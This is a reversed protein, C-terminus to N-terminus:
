FAPEGITPRYGFRLAPQNNLALRIRRELRAIETTLSQIQVQLRAKMQTLESYPRQWYQVLVSSVALRLDYDSIDPNERRVLASVERNLVDDIEGFRMGDLGLFVQTDQQIGGIDQNLTTRCAEGCIRALRELFARETQQDRGWRDYVQKALRLFEAADKLDGLGPRRASGDRERLFSGGDNEPSDLLDFEYAHGQRQEAWQELAYQVGVVPAEVMLKVAHYEILINRLAPNRAVAVVNNIKDLIAKAALAEEVAATAQAYRVGQTTAYAGEAVYAGAMVAEVAATLGLTAISVVVHVILQNVADDMRQAHRVHRETELNQGHYVVRMELREQAAAVAALASTKGMLQASMEALRDFETNNPM